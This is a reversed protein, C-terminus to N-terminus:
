ASVISSLPPILRSRIATREALPDDRDLQARNEFLPHFIAISSSSSAAAEDKEERQTLQLWRNEKV